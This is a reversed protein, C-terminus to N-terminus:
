ELQSGEIFLLNNHTGFSNYCLQDNGPDNQWQGDVLFKYEYRGPLLMVTKKWLRNKDRQMCHIKANWKNFDGMLIVEKAEPADFLITVRRRKIAVKGKAKKKSM